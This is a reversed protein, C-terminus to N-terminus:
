KDAWEAAFECFPDGRTRCLSEEASVIRSGAMAIAELAWGKIALCHARHPADFGEVRMRASSDSAPLVTLAGSDYHASWLKPAKDFLYTPSGFRFFLKFVTPLSNNALYRGLEVCLQLDGHGFLADAQVNVDVIVDSPVWAHPLIRADVVARTAPQLTAHLREFGEAGHKERVYRLCSLVAIGKVQGL